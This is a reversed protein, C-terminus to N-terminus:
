NHATPQHVVFKDLYDHLLQRHEKRYAEYDQAIGEDAASILIWCDLVGADHLMVLNRLSEDLAEPKINKLKVSAVVASLAADEEVLTHRYEKENPFKQHFEKVQFHARSLMYVTWASAGPHKTEDIFEPDINVKINQPDDVHEISGKPRDVKPALVIANM